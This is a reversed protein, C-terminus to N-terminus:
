KAPGSPPDKTAMKRLIDDIKDIMDYAKRIRVQTNNIRDIKKMADDFSEVMMLRPTKKLENEGNKIIELCQNRYFKLANVIHRTRTSVITGDDLKTEFYRDEIYIEAM